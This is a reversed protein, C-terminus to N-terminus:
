PAKGKKSRPLALARAARARYLDTFAADIAGQVAARTSQRLRRRRAFDLARGLQRILTFYPAERGKM